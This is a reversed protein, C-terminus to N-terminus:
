MEEEEEMMPFLECVCCNGKRQKAERYGKGSGLIDKKRILNGLIKRSIVTIVPSLQMERLRDPFTAFCM